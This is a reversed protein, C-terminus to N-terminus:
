VITMVAMTVIFPAMRIKAVLIGSFFGISGGILLTLLIAVGTSMHYESVFIASIVGGFALMSGVSLDIGGTLIVLLMGM